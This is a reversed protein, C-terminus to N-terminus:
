DGWPSTDVGMMQFGKVVARPNLIGPKWHFNWMRENAVGSVFMKAQDLTVLVGRASIQREYREAHEADIVYNMADCMRVMSVNNWDYPSLSIHLFAGPTVSQLEFNKSVLTIPTMCCACWSELRVTKDKFPPMHSFAIAESACGVFAHFEDDIYARVQSPYSSFPPAKLLNCNQTDEDVTIVIGLQLEKYAQIVQRRDLGTAQHVELLTPGRGHECWFEFVHARVQEANDSFEFEPVNQPMFGCV